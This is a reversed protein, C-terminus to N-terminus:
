EDDPDDTYTSREPDPGRPAAARTTHVPNACREARDHHWGCWCRIWCTCGGLPAGCKVCRVVLDIATMVASDKM